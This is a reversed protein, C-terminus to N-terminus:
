RLGYCEGRPTQAFGAHRIAQFYHERSALDVSPKKAEAFFRVDRFNPTVHFAANAM